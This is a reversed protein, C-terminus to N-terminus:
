VLSATTEPPLEATLPVEDLLRLEAASLNVRRRSHRPTLTGNFVERPLEGFIGVVALVRKRAEADTGPMFDNRSLVRLEDRILYRQFYVVEEFLSRCARTMTYILQYADSDSLMDKRTLTKVVRVFFDYDSILMVVAYGYPSKFGLDVEM